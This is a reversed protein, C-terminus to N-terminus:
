SPSKDELIKGGCYPCFNFTLGKKRFKGSKALVLARTPKGDAMQSLQMLQVGGRGSTPELIADLGKCPIITGNKIECAM